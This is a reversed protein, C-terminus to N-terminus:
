SVGNPGTETEDIGWRERRRREGDKLRPRSNRLAMAKIRDFKRELAGGSQVVFSCEAELNAPSYLWQIAGLIDEYSNGRKLLRGIPRAWAEIGVTTTPVGLKPDHARMVDCLCRALVMANGSHFTKTRKSPANPKELVGQDQEPVTRESRADPIRTLSHYESRLKDM